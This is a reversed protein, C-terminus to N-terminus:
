PGTHPRSYRIGQPPSSGLPGESPVASYAQNASGIHLQVPRGSTHSSYRYLYGQSPATTAMLSCVFLFFFTPRTMRNSIIAAATATMTRLGNALILANFGAEPASTAPSSSFGAM